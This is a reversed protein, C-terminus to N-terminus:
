IQQDRFVFLGIFLWLAMNMIAPSIVTYISSFNGQLGEIVGILLQNILTLGGVCLVQQWLSFFIMRNLLKLIMYATVTLSFAHEGLLSGLLSDQVLGLIWAYFLLPPEKRNLFAAVLFFLVMMDFSFVSAEPLPLVSYTFVFILGLFAYVGRPLAM